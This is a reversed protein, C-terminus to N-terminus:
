FSSGRITTILQRNVYNSSFVGECQGSRVNDEFVVLVNMDSEYRARDHTISGGVSCIGPVLCNCSEFWVREM